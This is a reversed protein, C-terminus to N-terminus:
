YETLLITIYVTGSAITGTRFTYNKTTGDGMLFVNTMDFSLTAGAAVNDKTIVTGVGVDSATFAAVVAAPTSATDNVKGVTAATATAATGNREQTVTTAASSYVKAGILKVRKAGSAPQQVTVVCASSSPACEYHVRYVPPVENENAPLQAFLSFGGVMAAILLRQIM